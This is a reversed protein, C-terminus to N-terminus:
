LKSPLKRHKNIFDSIVGSVKEPETLHLHHTSDITQYEFKPNKNLIDVVQDHYEKREYYPSKSAKIFMHPCTIRKALEVLVEQPYNSGYSFKLRSDRAFYFKGPYKESRKLNRKLLYQACEATVSGQTGEVMKEVCEDISYAPPESKEQNRKDALIFNEIREELIEAVLKPNFIHPKLADIGIYLDVKSPFVSAFMYSLISGMSHAIISIKDWKYEKM